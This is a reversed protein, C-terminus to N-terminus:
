RSSVIAKMLDASIDSLRFKALDEDGLALVALRGEARYFCGPHAGGVVERDDALGGCVRCECLHRVDHALLRERGDPLRHRGKM